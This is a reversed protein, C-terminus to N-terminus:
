KITQPVYLVKFHKVYLYTGGVHAGFLVHARGAVVIVNSLCREPKVALLRDSQTLSHLNLVVAVAPGANKDQNIQSAQV